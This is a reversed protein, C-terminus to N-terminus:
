MLEPSRPHMPSRTMDEGTLLAAVFRPLPHAIGALYIRLVATLPVALIAGVLGWATGWLLIALLVAVPQLAVANGVLVPELVDKGFTGVAFPGVFALAVQWPAYDPSLAILPMPLACAIGMGVNPVFNLFFSLLTFTLWLEVGLAWYIVGSCAAVFLCILCKGSIYQYVRKEALSALAVGRRGSSGAAAEGDGGEGGHQAEAPQEGDTHHLLFALFLIIYLANEAIHGVEGLLSIIIDTLSVNAVFDAVQAKIEDLSMSKRGMSVALANATEVSADILETLSQTYVDAKAMFKAASMTVLSVLFTGLGIVVLFSLVVAVGRPLKCNGPTACRACSLLDIIPTLLFKLTIAILFPVLIGKLHYVAFCLCTTAIVALSATRIRGDVEVEDPMLPEAEFVHPHSLHRGSHVATNVSGRSHLRASPPQLTPPAPGPQPLSASRGSGPSTSGFGPLSPLTGIPM